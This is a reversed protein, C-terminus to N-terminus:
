NAVALTFLSIKIEPVSVMKLICSEVTSGTTIVDDVLLIHKHNFLEPNKLQFVAEVNLWRGFRSKRTQTETFIARHLNETDLAIGSASALAKAIIESQNFGRKALKKPHLPIPVIIDVDKLFKSNLLDQVAIGALYEGVDIRGKYKLAHLLSQVIGGKAFYLYSTARELLCRGTFIKQISNDATLHFNTKPLNIRCHLCILEEHSVLPVQCGLCANPYIVDILDDLWALKVM